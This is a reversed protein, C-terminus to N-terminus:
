KGSLKDKLKQLWEYLKPVHTYREPEKLLIEARELANRGVLGLNGLEESSAQHRYQQMAEQAIGAIHLEVIASDRERMGQCIELAEQLSKRKVADCLQDYQLKLQRGHKRDYEITLDQAVKVGPQRGHKGGFILLSLAISLFCFALVIIWNM